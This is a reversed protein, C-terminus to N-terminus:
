QATTHLNGSVRDELDSDLRARVSAVDTENGDALGVEREISKRDLKSLANVPQNESRYHLDGAPGQISRSATVLASGKVCCAFDAAM